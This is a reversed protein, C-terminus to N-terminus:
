CASSDTISCTLLPISSRSARRALGVGVGRRELPGHEAATRRVGAHRGVVEVGDASILRVVDETLGTPALETDLNSHFAFAYEREVLRDVM